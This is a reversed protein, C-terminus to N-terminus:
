LLIRRALHVPCGRLAVLEYARGALDRATLMLATDMDFGVRFLRRVHWAAETVTLNTNTAPANM